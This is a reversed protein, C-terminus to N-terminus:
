AITSSSFLLTANNHAIEAESIAKAASQDDAVDVVFFRGGIAAAKLAGNEANLDFLSVKAGAASLMEAAAGGLGSAGGTVIAAVGDLKM